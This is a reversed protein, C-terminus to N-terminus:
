FVFEEYAIPEIGTMILHIYIAKDEIFRKTMSTKPTNNKIMKKTLERNDESIRKRRVFKIIEYEPDIRQLFVQVEKFGIKETQKEYKLWERVLAYVGGKRNCAFCNFRNIESNYYFSPNSDSHFPCSYAYNSGVRKDPEGLGIEELIQSIQFLKNILEIRTQIINPLSM